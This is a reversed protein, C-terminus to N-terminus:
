RLLRQLAPNARGYSVLVVDLALHEFRQLAREIAATIWNMDNGFVGGGLLTLFVERKGHQAANIAAACLTAEYAAELVLSAFPQWLPSPHPCYGIPLASCYAQTVCHEAGALTVQTQWQLGIRLLGRLRERTSADQLQTNIVALAEAGPMAYGNRMQWLRQEHNGLAQGLDALCDVQLTSSQGTQGGLKVFYNRFITGAGAAIACCPGQTHDHEYIGIGDEPTVNPGTMELLNFQSAVQFLAGAHAPDAPLRGVDAVIERVQLRGPGSPLNYQTLRQRLEDLSPTELQGYRWRRGNAKSCMWEGDLVLAAQVQQASGEAIGTLREFWTM